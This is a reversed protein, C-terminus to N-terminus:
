ATRRRRQCHRQGIAAPTAIVSLRAQRKYVDLHTYSVPITRGRAASKVVEAVGSAAAAAPGNGGPNAGPAESGCGGLLLACMMTGLYTKM